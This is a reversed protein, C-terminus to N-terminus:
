LMLTKMACTHFHGCNLVAHLPTFLLTHYSWITNHLLLYTGPTASFSYNKHTNINLKSINQIILTCELNGNYKYKIAKDMGCDM